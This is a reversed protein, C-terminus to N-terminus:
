FPLLRRVLQLVEIYANGWAQDRFFQVPMGPAGIFPRLVWAMQIGVFTYLLIWVRRLTKHRMHRRILPEYYRRMMFHGSLSAVFFMLGNWLLIFQYNNTTLNMLETLPALAALMISAISQFGLLAELTQPFDEHLGALANMAYFSPLCLLFTVTFLVPVKSASLLMQKWGDGSVGSFSGMCVGYMMGCAAIIQVQRWVRQRGPISGAGAGRYVDEARLMQDITLLLSTM